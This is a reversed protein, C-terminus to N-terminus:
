RWLYEALRSEWDAGNSPPTEWINKELLTNDRDVVVIQHYVVDKGDLVIESMRGKGLNYSILLLPGQRHILRQSFGGVFTPVFSLGHIIECLTIEETM